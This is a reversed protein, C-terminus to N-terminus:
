DTKKRKNNSSTNNSCAAFPKMVTGSSNFKFTTRTGSSNYNDRANKNLTPWPKLKLKMNSDKASLSPKINKKVNSKLPLEKMKLASRKSNLNSLPRCIEVSKIKKHLSGLCKIERSTQKANPKLTMLLRLERLIVLNTKASISRWAVISL